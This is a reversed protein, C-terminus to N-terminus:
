LFFFGTGIDQILDRQVQHAMTEIIENQIDHSTYKNGGQRKTFELLGPDDKGRLKILQYFNSDTDGQIAQGQRCLSQLNEIIKLLCRRNIQRVKKSEENTMEIVNRCSKPFNVAYDIAMKHCESSEHQRFKDLAKKWNCFGASIFKQDKKTACRLNGKLSLTKSLAIFVFSQIVSNMM